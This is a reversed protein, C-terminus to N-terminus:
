SSSALRNELYHSWIQMDADPTETFEVGVNFTDSDGVAKVWRVKGVHTIIKRPLDLVLHIKLMSDQTFPTTSQFRLGGLSVDKTMRLVTEGQRSPPPQDGSVLSIAIGNEKHLRPHKRRELM